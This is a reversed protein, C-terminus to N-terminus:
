NPNFWCKRLGGGLCVQLRELLKRKTYEAIEKQFQNIRWMIEMCSTHVTFIYKGPSPLETWSLSVQTGLIIQYTSSTYDNVLIYPLPPQWSTWLKASTPFVLVSFQHGLESFYKKLIQLRCFFYNHNNAYSHVIMRDCWYRCLTLYMISLLLGKMLFFPIGYTNTNGYRGYDM